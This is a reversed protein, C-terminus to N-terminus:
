FPIEIGKEELLQRFYDMMEDGPLGKKNAEEVWEDWVPEAGKQFEAEEEPTLEIIEGESGELLEDITSWVEEEDPYSDRHMEGLLPFLEEDFLPKLDEPIKEYGSPSMVFAAQFNYGPGNFKTIYPAVEYFSTDYAAPAPVWLADITGRQVSQYLESFAMSERTAGWEKFVGGMSNASANIIKGKVDDINRIPTRSHLAYNFSTTNSMYVLNNDAYIEEGYENLFTKMVDFSTHINDFAFPLNGISHVFLSTDEMTSVTIEGIDYVGGAIDESAQLQSGLAGDSYVDVKVRGETKEEVIDAWETVADAVFHNSSLWHNLTLTLSEDASTESDQGCAALVLVLASIFILRLIQKSYRKM